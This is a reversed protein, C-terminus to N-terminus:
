NAANWRAREERSVYGITFYDRHVIMRGDPTLKHFSLGKDDWLRWVSLWRIRRAWYRQRGTM